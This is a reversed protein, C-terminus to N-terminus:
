NKIQKKYRYYTPKSLNLFKMIENPSLGEALLDKMKKICIEMEEKKTMKGKDKLSKQYEERRASPNYDRRRRRNKEETNFLTTMDKMEEQTIGLEQIMKANTWLMCKRDKVFKNFSISKDTKQYDEQAQVFNKYYRLTPKTVAEIYEENFGEDGFDKMDYALRITEKLSEEESFNRHLLSQRYLLCIFDRAGKCEGRLEVLKELDACRNCAVNISWNLVTAGRYTARKTKVKKSKSSKDKKDLLVDALETISYRKVEELPNYNFSKKTDYILKAVRGTKQNISGPVRVVRSIDSAVADAEFDKFREIIKQELAKWLKRMSQLQGNLTNELLYYIYMGNGSDVFFSPELEKFLGKKRMIEIMEIATKDAYKPIKYYDLDVFIANMQFCKSNQRQPTIFNNVSMYCNDLTLFNSLFNFNIEEKKFGWQEWVGNSSKNAFVIFKTEDKLYSNSHLLNFFTEAQEIRSANLLRITKSEKLQKVANHKYEKRALNSLRM